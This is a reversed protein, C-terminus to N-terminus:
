PLYEGGRELARGYAPRARIREIWAVINPFAGSVSGRAYGAELPYSMQVDAGSFRDGAFWDVGALEADIFELLRQIEPLTFNSSIKDAIGKAVPKVFFPLKAEKVRDTILKVLLPPM